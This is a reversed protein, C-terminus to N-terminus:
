HANEVTFLVCVGLVINHLYWVLLQKLHVLPHHQYACKLLGQALKEGLARQAPGRVQADSLLGAGHADDRRRAVGVPKDGIVAPMPVKKRAPQLRAADHAFEHALECTVATPTSARLMKRGHVHMKEARVADRTTSEGNGCSGGECELVLVLILYGDDKEPIDSSPVSPMSVTTQPDLGVFHKIKKM